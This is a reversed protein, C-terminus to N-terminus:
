ILVCIHFSCIGNVIKQIVKSAEARLFTGENLDIKRWM